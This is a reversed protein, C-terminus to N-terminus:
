AESFVQEAAAITAQIEDKGHANSMFAAEFQSPAFYVGAELMAHFFKAYRETDAHRKASAYDTIAADPTKLFYFGFMTGVCAAQIAIG